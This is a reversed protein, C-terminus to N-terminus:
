GEFAPTIPEPAVGQFQRRFDDVVTQSAFQCARSQTWSTLVINYDDPMDMYPAGVTAQPEQRVLQEVQEEIFGLDPANPRYWIVIQGHELNHVLREPEIGSDEEYFGPEAPVAYHSGSTPPSTGYTVVKGDRVHDQGEDPHSEVPGCNADEESIDDLSQDAIFDVGDEIAEDFSDSQSWTFLTVSGAIVLATLLAAIAVGIWGMIIGALAMGSGGEMGQSRKIQGRGVYGFILAAISGVGACITLGLIGSILSTVAMGNTKPAPIQPQYQQQGQQYQPPQPPPQDV